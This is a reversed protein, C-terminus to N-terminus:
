REESVSRVTLHTIFGLEISDNRMLQRVESGALPVGNVRTGNTSGLDRVAWYRGTWVIEAHRRSIYPDSRLPIDLGPGERGILVSPQDIVFVRESLDDPPPPADPHDFRSPDVTAVLVLAPAAAGNPAEPQAGNAEFPEGTMFDYGCNACYRDAGDRGAGCVLCVPVAPAEATEARQGRATSLASTEPNREGCVDCYDADASHHGHACVFGMRKM